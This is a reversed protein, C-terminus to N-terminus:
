QKPDEFRMQKAGHQSGNTSASATEAAQDVSPPEPLVPVSGAYSFRSDFIPHAADMAFQQVDSEINRFGRDRAVPLASASVHRPCLWVICTNRSIASRHPALARRLILSWTMRGEVFPVDSAETAFIQSIIVIVARVDPQLLCRRRAPRDIWVTWVRDLRALHVRPRAYTTKMMAVSHM